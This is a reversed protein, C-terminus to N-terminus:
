SSASHWSIEPPNPSASSHARLPIFTLLAPAADGDRVAHGGPAHQAYVAARAVADVADREVGPLDLALHSAVAGRHAERATLEERQLLAGRAREAFRVRVGEVRVKQHEFVSLEVVVNLGDSAGLAHVAL